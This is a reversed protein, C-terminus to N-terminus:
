HRVFTWRVGEKLRISLQIRAADPTLPQGRAPDLGGIARVPTGSRDAPMSATHALNRCTSSCLDVDGRGIHGAGRSQRQYGPDLGGVGPRCDHWCLALYLIHGFGPRSQRPQSGRGSGASSRRLFLPRVSFALFAVWDAEAPLTGAPFASHPPCASLSTAAGIMVSRVREVSQRRRM